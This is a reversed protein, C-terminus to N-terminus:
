LKRHMNPFDSINLKKFNSYVEIAGNDDNSSSEALFKSRLVLGQSMEAEAPWKDKKEEVGTMNDLKAVLEDDKLEVETKM